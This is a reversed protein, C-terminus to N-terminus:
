LLETFDNIFYDSTPILDQNVVGVFKMNAAIASQNDSNGDGFVICEKPDVGIRRACELFIDPAPKGNLVDDASVINEKSFYKDFNFYEIVNSVYIKQSATGISLLKNQLALSELFKDVGPILDVKFSFDNNINKGPSLSNLINWKTDKLNNLEEESPEIHNEILIQRFVKRTSIGAYKSTISQPEITINYFTKMLRSEVFAHLKQSDAITGDFDFIFYKFNNIENKIDNMVDKNIEKKRLV